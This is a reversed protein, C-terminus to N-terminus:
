SGGKTADANAEDEDPPLSEIFLKKLERLLMEVGTHTAVFTKPEGSEAPVYLTGTWSAGDWSLPGITSGAPFRWRGDQEVFKAALRKQRRIALVKLRDRRTEHCERCRFGQPMEHGCYFTKPGPPPTPPKPDKKAKPQDLRRPSQAPKPAPAPVADPPKPRRVSRAYPLPM